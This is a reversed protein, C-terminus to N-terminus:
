GGGSLLSSAVWERGKDTLVRLDGVRRTVGEADYIGLLPVCIRRNGGVLDRFQAVTMGEGQEPLARLLMNRCRNVVSAHIYDGEIFYAKRDRVLYRLIGKLEREDINEKTAARTLESKLPLQLGCKCLFDDVFGIERAMEPGIKVTHGALAWTRAVRKIEGKGELEQVILRLMAEAAPEGAMALIGTLEEITRGGKELPHRRHYGGIVKLCAERLRDYERRVLLCIQDGAVRRVIDHPLHESTIERVEAQSINLIDAIQRHGVPRFHKRVESAILKPLAGKAIEEMGAIAEATRRRHHLPAPDIIKGGGLTMDNSTSRIVFRDGYQTVCPEDLHIQVLGTEGGSLRTRDILHIRAGQEYTGCHFAAQSWLGLGRSREFLRLEADVMRTDRLIRDSVVMGRSFDERKLGVLNVSARDGAVVQEVEEGHRELRRVRLEKGGPLLYATAGTRLAGDLVSGTVVSGFGSVAFIRDPFLRFVEGRRRDELGSVVEAIADKLLDLGQGTVASVRVIPSGWLFTGRVLKAIEEEAIDVIEPEILDIRTLVVVGDRIGLVDMIRLHEITQPMVGSDAAVVLLALDIGSAGGVMTHVFDRHGPVDVIGLSDGNPLDLHTFGLNITIGRAKEEKHTDCDVGTLAKTLATKGHDVHGATGMILHKM